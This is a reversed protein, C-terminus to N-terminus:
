ILSLAILDFIDDDLSLCQELASSEQAQTSFTGKGWNSNLYYIKDGVGKVRFNYITDPNLNAVLCTNSTIGVITKYATENEEKYQLIYRLAGEIANWSIRISDDTANANLTPTALTVPETMFAAKLSVTTWISNTYYIKDGVAKVKVDYWANEVVNPISFATNTVGAVTVYASDSKLKYSVIYRVAGRAPNWTINVYDPATDFTVTPNEIAVPAAVVTLTTWNSNLYAVRDGVAKVRINYSVNATVNPVAFSNDLIGSVTTYDTDDAAKYAVIYRVAGVAPEWFIEVSNNSTVAYANPPAIVGPNAPAGTKVELNTWDSDVRKTADYSAGVRLYYLQNANLGSITKSGPSGYTLTTASEFSADTSYQVVYGSANNVNGITLVISNGVAQADVVPAHLKVAVHIKCTPADSAGDYCNIEIPKNQEGDIVARWVSRYDDMPIENGQADYAEMTEGDNLVTVFLSFGQEKAVYLTEVDHPVQLSILNTCTSVDLSTFANGSCNLYQLGLCNEVILNDIQNDYCDLYRLALNGSADLSTIANNYCDVYTLAGNKPLSLSTLDNNYCRLDKLAACHALQLEKISNDYCFIKVIKECDDLNLTAIANGYCLLSKLNECGGLELSTLSNSYCSLLELSALGDCDLDNLTNDYCVLKELASCNEVNLETLDNSSCDIAKLAVCGSANLTKLRNKFCDLETLSVCGSVDLTELKGGNYALQTFVVCNALNLNVLMRSDCSLLTLAVCGSADISTILENNYCYLEKLAVCGSVDLSGSLEMGSLNLFTLRGEDNWLTRDSDPTLNLSNLLVLDHQHYSATSNLLTISSLDLSADDVRLLAEDSSVDGINLDLRTVLGDGSFLTRSELKEFRALRFGNKKSPNM